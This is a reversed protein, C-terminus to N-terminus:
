TQGGALEHWKVDGPEVTQALAAILHDTSQYEFLPLVWPYPAIDTVFTAYEPSGALLIPVVPLRPMHPVFQMLESRIEAADTLDAIVYRAMRALLAVTEGYGRNTPKSFDFMIPTRDFERLRERVADLVAKREDTFRGLILVVKSTITDVVDRVESNSILLYVFQAMKLNDVTVEPEGDPTIVLDHQDAVEGLLEWASLGFVRAGTLRARDLNSEVITTMQLNARRLDAGSMDSRALFTRYLNAEVFSAERLDARNFNARYLQAGDLKSHFLNADRLNARRLDAGVLNAGSLNAGRLNAGLLDAGGLDADSLDANRLDLEVPRSENWRAVDTRLMSVHPDM